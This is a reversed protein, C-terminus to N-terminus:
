EPVHGVVDDFTASSGAGAPLLTLGAYDFGDTPPNGDTGSVVERGDIRGTITQDSPNLSQHCSLRLQHPSDASVATGDEDLLTVASGAVRWLRTGTPGVEMTYGTGDNGLCGLGAWSGEDRAVLTATLDVTYARRAFEGVTVARQADAATATVVYRGDRVEFRYPGTRADGTGEHFPEASNTFRADLLDHTLAQDLGVGLLLLGCGGAGVVLVAAAVVFWIWRRSRRPPPTSPSRWAIGDWYEAVAWARGDWWRRRAPDAPAAPDPYWGPAAGPEEVPHPIETTSM